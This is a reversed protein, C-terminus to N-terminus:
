RKREGDREKEKEKIDGYKGKRLSEERRGWM